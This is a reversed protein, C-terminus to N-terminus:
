IASSAVESEEDLDAYIEDGEEIVRYTRLDVTCPFTMAQGTPIHFQGDHVPCAILDGDVIEGESLSATAHTCVDSTAYFVGDINYIALPCGATEVKCVKGPELADRKILFVKNSM